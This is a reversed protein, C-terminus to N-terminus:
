GGGAGTTPACQYSAISAFILTEMNERLMVAPSGRFQPAELIGERWRVRIKQSGWSKNDSNGYVDELSAREPDSRLPLVLCLDVDM